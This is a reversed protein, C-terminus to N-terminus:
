LRDRLQMFRNQVDDWAPFPGYCLMRCQSEFESKLADRLVGEPFIADSTAFSMDTPPFYAEPFYKRSIRDYDERVAAYEASDLMALVEDRGALQYLDYYHRAYAAIPRGDRKLLEVKGHIAFLKEVFTRRFHLLRMSFPKEDDVGLTVGTDALFQSLYSALPM